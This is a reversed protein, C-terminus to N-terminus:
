RRWRRYSFQQHGEAMQYAPPSSVDGDRWLPVSRMASTARPNLQVVDHHIHLTVFRFDLRLCYICRISRSSANEVRIVHGNRMCARGSAVHIRLVGIQDFHHHIYVAPRNIKKASALEKDGPHQNQPSHLTDDADQFKRKGAYGTGSNWYPMRTPRLRRQFFGLLELLQTRQLM